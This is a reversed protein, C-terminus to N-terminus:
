IAVNKGWVIWPCEAGHAYDFFERESEGSHRDIVMIMEGRKVGLPNGM